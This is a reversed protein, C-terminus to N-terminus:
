GGPRVTVFFLYIYGSQDRLDSIGDPVTASVTVSIPGFGLVFKSNVTKEGGANITETGFTNKGIFASGKIVISWTVSSADVLGTNKIPASVKFLGGAINGIVLEPGEIIEITHNESWESESDSTDKAKVRVNYNDETTWIKSASGTGGSFYPGIWGSDTGDGWEFLYYIQDGEPDNTKSTFTYEAGVVGQDPGTPAPPTDPPAEGVGIGAWINFNNNFGLDKAEQWGSGSLYLWDGKGAVAPGPDMGAPYQGASHTGEISVWIDADGTIDVPDDLIIDTWDNEYASFDTESILSGPQSSSGEEYIKVKGNMNFPGSTWDHHYRVVTIRRGSWDGLEDPTFRAAWEFTGGNTLGLANVTEGNDFHLWDDSMTNDFSPSRTTPNYEGTTNIWSFVNNEEKENNEIGTVSAVTVFLLTCVFISVIKKNM